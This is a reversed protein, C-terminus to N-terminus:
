LVVVRTGPFRSDIRAALAPSGSIKRVIMVYFLVMIMGEVWNTKADATVYNVLFCAGILIAVEWLDFLLSMERHTWWGLLVVVPMWFLVFQISLDISRAKALEDPAEPRMLLITRLFYVVAILGDAAFSLLPLLVLGFWEASIRQERLPELSSVLWEATVAILAVTVILLTIGFWPGILPDEQAIEAEKRKEAEPTSPHHTLSNGEGPPNHLYIRSGIYAILLLISLGRSLQLFTHRSSDTVAVTRVARLMAERLAVDHEESAARAILHTAVETTSNASNTPLSAPLAAFLAAPLLLTIVGLTLLSHNLQTPHPKLHQEWVRAGGTLFATGPVLLLHLLIVGVLTSQLLRLECHTLLIIALTAEVVNDLTIVLFDGLSTGLYLAMQEGGFDSLKELPIIALFSFSFTIPYHWHAWHSAWSFPIFFVFVILWSHRLTNNASEAWGPVHRKGQGNLRAWFAKTRSISGSDGLHPHNPHSLTDADPEHAERAAGNGNGSDVGSELDRDTTARTNARSTNRSIAVRTTPQVSTATSATRRPEAM